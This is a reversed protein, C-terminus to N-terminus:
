KDIKWMADNDIFLKGRQWLLDTIPTIADTNKFFKIRRLSILKKDDREFHRFNVWKLNIISAYFFSRFLITFSDLCLFILCINKVTKIYM